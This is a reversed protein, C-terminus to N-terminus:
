EFSMKTLEDEEDKIIKNLDKKVLLGVTVLIKIVKTYFVDFPMDLMLEARKNIKNPYSGDEGKFIFAAIKDCNAKFDVCYQELLLVEKTSVTTLDINESYGKYETLDNANKPVEKMWELEAVIQQIQDENLVKITDKPINCIIELISELSSLNVEKYQRLTVEHWGEPINIEIEKNVEM